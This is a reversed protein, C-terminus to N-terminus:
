NMLYKYFCVMQTLRIVSEQFSLDSMNDDINQIIKSADFPTSFTHMLKLIEKQVEILKRHTIEATKPEGNNRFIMIAKNFFYNARLPGQKDTKLIGEAYDVFYDGLAIMLQRASDEKKSKTLYKHKLLYAEEVKHPNDKSNIIIKDLIGMISISDGYSQSFLIEIINIPLFDKSNGDNDILVKFLKECCSTLLKQNNIQSSICIARKIMNLAELWDEDSYWLDFLESYAAAATQACLYDKKQNWLIGTVQARLNVPMKMFDLSLLRSYDEDSLDEISFTRKGDFVYRPCFEVGKNSIRTAISSVNKLLDFNKEDDTTELLAKKDDQFLLPSLERKKVSFM